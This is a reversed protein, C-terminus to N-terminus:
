KEKKLDDPIIEEKPVNFPEVWPHNCEQCRCNMQTRLHNWTDIRMANENGCSPCKIM